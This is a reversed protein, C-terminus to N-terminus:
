FRVLWGSSSSFTSLMAGSASSIIKSMDLTDYMEDAPSRDMRLASSSISSLFPMLSTMTLLSTLDINSMVFKELISLM